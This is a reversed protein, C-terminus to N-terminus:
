IEMKYSVEAKPSILNIKEIFKENHLKDQEKRKAIQELLGNAKLGYEKQKNEVKPESPEEPDADPTFVKGKLPTKDPDTEDEEGISAQDDMSLKVAKLALSPDHTPKNFNKM